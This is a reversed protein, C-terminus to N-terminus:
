AGDGVCPGEHVATGCNWCEPNLGALADTAVAQVWDGFDAGLLPCELIARLTREYREVRQEIPEEKSAEIIAAAISEPSLVSM